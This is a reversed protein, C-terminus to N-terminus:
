SWASGPHQLVDGAPFSSLSAIPIAATKLSSTLGNPAGPPRAPRTRRMEPGRDVRHGALEVAIDLHGAHRAYEALVHFCIWELSPPDDAFRGGPSATADLPFDRLVSRTRDGIARLREVLEEATVDPAVYWRGEASRTGRSTSRGTAGPSTSRSASSAGCSGGSSWTCCTHCCSSRRGARRCGARAGSPRRAAGARRGRDGRAGLRPVGGVPGRRGSRGQGARGPQARGPQGRDRRAEIRNGDEDWHAAVKKSPQVRPPEGPMKPYDPPYNMEGGPLEEWLRLLPELPYATDDIAAWPDGDALRDPVTFLNFERPDTVGALEDWTM